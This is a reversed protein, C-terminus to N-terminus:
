EGCPADQDIQVAGREPAASRFRATQSRFPAGLAAAALAPINLQRLSARNRSSIRSGGGRMCTAAARQYRAKNGGRRAFNRHIRAHWAAVLWFRFLRHRRALEPPIESGIAYTHM